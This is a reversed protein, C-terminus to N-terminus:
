PSPDDNLEAYQRAATRAIRRQQNGVLRANQHIGTEAHPLQRFAESRDALGQFLEVRDEDGVLMGIVHGAQRHQRAVLFDFGCDVHRPQGRRGDIPSFRLWPELRKLGTRPQPDPIDVHLAEPM